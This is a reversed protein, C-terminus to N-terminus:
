ELMRVRFFVAPHTCCDQVVTELATTPETVTEWEGADLSTSREVVYQHVPQEVDDGENRLLARPGHWRIRLAGDAMPSMEIIRPRPRFGIVGRLPLNLQGNPTWNDSTWASFQNDGSAWSSRYRVYQGGADDIVYGYALLAHIPPNLGPRGHLTRSKQDFPQMFLLVPFGADIEAKLDEFTFGKGPEVDPHFDALQSFTDAEYGRFRAWARLGSQIDRVGAPPTFNELREGAPDFFNYSYGDVNGECEGGLDNWKFQNLGIFDGICDPTHEERGAVVYPDPAVSEYAFWYDDVHGPMNEPRGDWGARSAWMSVIGRNDGFSNLPAVGGGTPGTYFDPLGNRDWFGMLNGTATGFCGYHWEYDPVEKLYVNVAAPSSLVALSVSLLVSRLVRPSHM